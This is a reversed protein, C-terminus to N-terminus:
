SKSLFVIDSILIAFLFNVQEYDFRDFERLLRIEIGASLHKNNRAVIFTSMSM